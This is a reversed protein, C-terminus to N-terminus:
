EKRWWISVPKKRENKKRNEEERQGEMCLFSFKLHCKKLSFSLKENCNLELNTPNLLTKCLYEVLFFKQICIFLQFIWITSVEVNIMVFKKSLEAIEKSDAM